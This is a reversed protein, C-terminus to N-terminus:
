SGTDSSMSDPRLTRLIIVAQFMVLLFHDVIEDPALTEMFIVKCNRMVFVWSM